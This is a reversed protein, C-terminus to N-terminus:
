KMLFTEIANHGIKFNNSNIEMTNDLPEEILNAPHIQGMKKFTNLSVQTDHGEMEVLRFITNPENEAKKITTIMVNSADLEFFSREEPLVANLYQNPAVVTYLKENSQVGSKYGTKWDTPVSTLSFHFSHDGTQLYDNGEGHCSKRSALLIPQLVPNSIPDNLPDIYDAAVVSSSLIVSHQDDYAGIWNQIGRPRTDKCPVVYREGAAGAMEDEGVQLIGYPVEYVVKGDPMNLPMAFRYERYLIGEWNLIDIKFDIKKLNHYVIVEQDVVANRIPQRMRYSTFVPGIDKIEWNTQYNGTKDFGSMDPQQVSAFEGAGNGISQMTFVEGAKFKSPDILEVQLQKDYISQLGGNSFEIKYFKNELKGAKGPEPSPPETSSVYYYTKYGISPINEAIFCIEAYKLSKDSYVEKKEIQVPIENGEGDSLLVHYAEGQDFYLHATAVDTRSWSLSNFVILPIGKKDDTKIKSSIELLTRDLIKKGQNRAFLYKQYFLNDTIEGNKGGWGHDPYIKAEWAENLEKQPYNKFSEDIWANATAFKEAQTLLIDGERSAKLAKQHSPGHIYLWIAPREGKIVPLDRAELSLANFFEPGSAIKFAPLSVNTFDGNENQLENISEWKSIFPTYDVAPSMDWDSLLPIVAGESKKPFYKEWYLSSSGIYQAADYFNM